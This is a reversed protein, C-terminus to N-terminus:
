KVLPVLDCCCCNFRTIHSYISSVILTSSLSRQCIASFKSFYMFYYNIIYIVNYVKKLKILPKNYVTILTDGSVPIKEQFELCLEREFRSANTIPLSEYIRTMQAGRKAIVIQPAVISLLYYVSNCLVFCFSHITM